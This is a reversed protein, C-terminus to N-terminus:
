ELSGVCGPTDGQFRHHDGLLKGAFDPLVFCASLQGGKRGANMLTPSNPLFRASVMAQYFLDAQHRRRGPPEVAAVADAVRRFLGAPTELTGGDDGRLFYREQFVLRASETWENEVAKRPFSGKAERRHM